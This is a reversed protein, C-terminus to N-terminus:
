LTFFQYSHGIVRVPGCKESIERLAVAERFNYGVDIDLQEM